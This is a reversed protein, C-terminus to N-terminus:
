ELYGLARMAAETQASRETVPGDTGDVEASWSELIAGLELAVEPHKASLDHVMAPDARHDYLAHGYGGELLPRAVLSFRSTRAVRQRTREVPWRKWAEALAQAEPRHKAIVDSKLLPDSRRDHLTQKKKGSRCLSFRPGNICHLRQERGTVLYDTLRAHLASGSEALAVGPGADAGTWGRSLDAGDTPLRQDLPLGLLSELTPAIDQLRAVAESRAAPVGPGAIVLPIRLSADHVNPGHEFFLGWEGLNEGHDATFVVLPAARGRSALGALLEGLATDTQAIEADYLASCGPLAATAIGGVNSFLKYRRLKGAAARTGLSRCRPAQPQPTHAPPLYPFHPDAYHVWLLLPCEAPVEDVRALAAETLAMAASDHHVVLSQFGADLGQDASAVKMASLAVTRWGRALLQTAITRDVTIRDGVERSGHHHPQLGTLMSALAPTTRPLPTTAQLFAQGRGALADLHPTQAQPHGAYGLRDARLTDVTM